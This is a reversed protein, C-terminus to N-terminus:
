RSTGQAEPICVGHLFVHLYISRVAWPGLPTIMIHYYYYCKMFPGIAQHLSMPTPNNERRESMATSKRVIAEDEASISLSKLLTPLIIV